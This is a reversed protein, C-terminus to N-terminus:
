SPQAKFHALKKKAEETAKTKPARAKQPALAVKPKRPTLTNRLEEEQALWQRLRRGWKREADLWVPLDENWKAEAACWLQLTIEKEVKLWKETREVWEKTWRQVDPGGCIESKCCCGNHRREQYYTNGCPHCGRPCAPQVTHTWGPFRSKRM